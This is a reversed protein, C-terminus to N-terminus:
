SALRDSRSLQGELLSRPSEPHGTGTTTGCTLCMQPRFSDHSRAGDVRQLYSPATPSVAEGKGDRCWSRQLAETRITPNSHETNRRGDGVWRVRRSADASMM